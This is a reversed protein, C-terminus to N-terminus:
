EEKVQIVIGGTIAAIINYLLAGVSGGIGLALGYALSGIIVGIVASGVQLPSDNTIGPIGIQVGLDKIASGSIVVVLSLILGVILGIAFYFKFMSGAEVKKVQIRKM